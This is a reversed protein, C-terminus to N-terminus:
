LRVSDRIFQLWIYFLGRWSYRVKGESTPLLVGARLNHEIQQSLDKQIAELMTEANLDVISTPEVRNRLLFVQHASVMEAFDAGANVRNIQLNPSPKLAASYPYNWTTWLQGDETRTSLSLYFFALDGQDISCIAAQMKEAPRYFLRFFQEQNEWNWGTDEVHDFHQEEIETTLDNFDPFVENSPPRRNELQKERPFRMTRVRTLLELWPLILWVSMGILGAPVSGSPLWGILFSVALLCILSLKQFVPHAFTRFALGLIAVGVVLAIASYFSLM